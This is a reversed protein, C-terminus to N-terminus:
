EYYCVQSSQMSRVTLLEIVLYVCSACRTRHLYEVATGFCCSHLATNNPQMVVCSRLICLSTLPCLRYGAVCSRVHGLLMQLDAKGTYMYTYVSTYMESCCCGCGHDLRCWCCLCTSCDFTHIQRPPLKPPTQARQPLLLPEGLAQLQQVLWWLHFQM